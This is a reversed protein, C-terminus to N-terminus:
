GLVTPLLYDLTKTLVVFAALATWLRVTLQSKLLGINSKTEQRLLDIDTKTAQRLLNIDAKTAQRLLDIDAKTAQHLLDIDAKTAVTGSIASNIQSAMEEAIRQDCGAEQLKRAAELTNFPEAMPIAEDLDTWIIKAANRGFRIDPGCAAFHATRVFKRSFSRESRRDNTQKTGHEM